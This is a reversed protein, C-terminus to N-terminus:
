VTGSLGHGPGLALLAAGVRTLGDGLLEVTECCTTRRGTAGFRKDLNKIASASEIAPYGVNARRCGVAWAGVRVHRAGLDIIEVVEHDQTQKM